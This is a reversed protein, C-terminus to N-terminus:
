VSAGFQHSAPKSRSKRRRQRLGFAAAIAIMVAAWALAAWRSPSPWLAGALVPAACANALMMGPTYRAVQAIQEVRVRGAMQETLVPGAVLSLDGDLAALVRAPISPHVSAQWLPCGPFIPCSLQFKTLHGLRGLRPAGLPRPAGGRWRGTMEKQHRAGVCRGYGDSRYESPLHILRDSFESTLPEIERVAHSTKSTQLRGQGRRRSQSRPRKGRLGRSICAQRRLSPRRREADSPGGRRHM